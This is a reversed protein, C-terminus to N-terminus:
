FSILYSEGKYTGQAVHHYAMQRVLLCHAIDGVEFLLLEVNDDLKAKTLPKGQRVRFPEFTPKNSVKARKIDFDTM